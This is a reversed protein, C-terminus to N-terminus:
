KSIEARSSAERAAFRVLKELGERCVQIAKFYDQLSVHEDPAHDLQSDGPGYAIMPRKVTAAFANVDGTGTKRTLVAPSLTIRNIAWMVKPLPM